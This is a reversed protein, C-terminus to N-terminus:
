GYGCANVPSATTESFDGPYGNDPPFDAWTAGDDTSIEVVVGDWNEELNYLAKYDIKPDTIDETLSITNTVISSCQDAPYNGNGEGTKYSLIGDAAKNSVVQWPFSLNMISINDVDEFIPSSTFGTGIALSRLRSTGLTETGGNPGAGNPSDDEARVIYYVPKDPARIDDYSTGTITTLLNDTSPIFDSDESRYINYKINPSAPCNATAASWELKNHCLDGVNDSISISSEAFSPLIDCAQQSVIDTCTESLSGLGKHQAARIKYAYQTGNLTRFDTYSNTESNGVFRAKRFDASDCAGEVKYVEFYDANDGGDWTLQIGNDGLTTSALNAVNTIIGPDTELNDFHGTAVLGFGQRFSNLTGDGPINAGSITITYIGETPSPIRVQEVTNISDREGGTGSIAIDSFVNGKIHKVM